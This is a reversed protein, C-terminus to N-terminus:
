VLWRRWWTPFPKRQLSARGGAGSEAGRAERFFGPHQPIVARPIAVGTPISPTICFWSAAPPFEALRLSGPLHRASRSWRRRPKCLGAILNRWYDRKRTSRTYGHHFAVWARGARASLVRVLLHSKFGHTQIVDPDLRAILQKLAGLVRWDFTFGEPICHVPIGSRQAEQLLENCGAPHAAEQRQFLVLSMEVRPGQKLERAVRCFELLNRAPGTVTDGELIVLLRIRAPSSPPFAAPQSDTKRIMAIQHM